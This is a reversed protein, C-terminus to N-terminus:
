LDVQPGLAASLLFFFGVFCFAPVSMLPQQGACSRRGQDRMGENDLLFFIFFLCMSAVSPLVASIM